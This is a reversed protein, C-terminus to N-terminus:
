GFTFCYAEVGSDLFEIEILRDAIPKPQRILQYLRQEDVTGNGQEDVETGHATGPPQRTAKATGTQEHAELPSHLALLDRSGGRM